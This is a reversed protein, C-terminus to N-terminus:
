ALRQLMRALLPRKLEIATQPCLEQCCYCHICAKRDFTPLRDKMHIAGTPCARYCDGCGICVDSNVFPDSQFLTKLLKAGIAHESWRSANVPDVKKYDDVRLSELPDGALPFAQISSPCLGREIAAKLTPVDHPELGMLATGVLDARHPDTSAIVAGVFRPQGGSPGNGEMGIVADIISLSPKVFEAIDVLMHAFTEHSQMREHYEAKVTGPVVGFLNKVAGTYHMFTHTKLKAFTIVADAETIFDAVDVHKLVAGQINSVTKAGTNYNLTVSDQTLKTMHTGDYVAKLWLESFPGGPSDGIIIEVKHELLRSILARILAPHTTCATDPHKRMLLNPKIVIRMGDRVWDLGGILDLARDMAPKVNVPDYSDCRTLVTTPKM